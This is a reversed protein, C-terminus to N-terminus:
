NFYRPQVPSGPLLWQCTEDGEYCPIPSIYNHRVAWNYTYYAGLLGLSIFSTTLIIELKKNPQEKKELTIGLRKLTEEKENKRRELIIAESMGQQKWEELREAEARSFLVKEELLEAHTKKPSTAIIDIQPEEHFSVRKNERVQMAHTAPNVIALILLLKKMTLAM